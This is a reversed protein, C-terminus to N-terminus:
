YSVAQENLNEKGIFIKVRENFKVIVGKRAGRDIYGCYLHNAKISEISNPNLSSLLSPKASVIVNKNGM